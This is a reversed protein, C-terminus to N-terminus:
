YMQDPFAAELYQWHDYKINNIYYIGCLCRLSIYMQVTAKM